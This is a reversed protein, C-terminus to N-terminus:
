RDDESQAIVEAAWAAHERVLPSPHSCLENIRDLCDYRQQAGALLCAQALLRNPVAVNTGIREKLMAATNKVDCLLSSLDVSPNSKGQALPNHPCCRQCEDCGLLRNGMVSRYAEPVPQGNMMWHRLCRERHYGNEDIAHTPCADMCRRCDGCHLPHANAELHIDPVCSEETLIIQVHFRSGYEPAYTLTNRGQTFGPMRAFIPKVLIDDRLACSEGANAADEVCQKAAHYATQSADYYPHIWAGEASPKKEAQYAKFALLLTGEPAAAAENADLAVVRDFGAAYLRDRINM